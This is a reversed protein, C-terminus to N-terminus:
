RGSQVANSCPDSQLAAGDMDCIHSSIGFIGEARLVDEWQPRHEAHRHKPAVFKTSGENKESRYKPREAVLLDLQDLGKGVLGDDGDLVHAQEVLHLCACAFERLRDLLQLREALDGLCDVGGEM